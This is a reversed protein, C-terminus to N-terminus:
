ERSWPLREGTAAAYVAHEHGHRGARGRRILDLRGTRALQWCNVRAQASTLPPCLDEPTFRGRAQAHALIRAYIAGYVRGTKKPSV